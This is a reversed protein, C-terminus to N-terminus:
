EQRKERERPAGQLLNGATGAASAALLVWGAQGLQARSVALSVEVFHSVPDSYIELFHSQLGGSSM